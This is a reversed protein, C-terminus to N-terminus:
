GESDPPEAGPEDMLFSFPAIAASEAKASRVPATGPKPRPSRVPREPPQTLSAFVALEPMAPVDELPREPAAPPPPQPPAPAPPQIPALEVPPLPRVAQEALKRKLDAIEGKQVETEATLDRSRRKYRGWFAYGLSLGLTLFIAALILVFLGSHYLFYILADSQLAPFEIKM